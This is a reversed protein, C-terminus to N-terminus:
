IFSIGNEVKVLNVSQKTLLKKLLKIESMLRDKSSKGKVFFGRQFLNIDNPCNTIVYGSHFVKKTANVAQRKLAQQKYGTNARKCALATKSLTRM